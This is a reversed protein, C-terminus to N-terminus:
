KPMVWYERQALGLQMKLLHAVTIVQRLIVHRGLAAVDLGVVANGSGLLLAPPSQFLFAHALLPLAAQAMAPVDAM